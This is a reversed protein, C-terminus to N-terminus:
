LDRSWFEIRKAWGSMESYFLSTLSRVGFFTPTLTRGIRDILHFHHSKQRDRDSTIHDMLNFSVTQPFQRPFTASEQGTVAPIDGAKKGYGISVGAKVRKGKLWSSIQFGQFLHSPETQIKESNYM